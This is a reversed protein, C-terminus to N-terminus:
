KYNIESLAEVIKDLVKSSDNARNYTKDFIKGNVSWVDSFDPKGNLNRCVLYDGYGHDIGSANIILDSWSTKIKFSISKPVRCAFNTDPKGVSKVKVFNGKNEELYEKTLPSGDPMKYTSLVKELKSVWMEGVTGKLIIDGPKVSYEAKEFPNYVKTNKDSMCAHIEYDKKGTLFFDKVHKTIFEKETM